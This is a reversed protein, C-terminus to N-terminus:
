PGEVLGRAVGCPVSHGSGTGPQHCPEPGCAFKMAIPAIVDFSQSSQEGIAQGAVSAEISDNRVASYIVQDCAGGGGDM